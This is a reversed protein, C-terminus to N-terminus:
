AANKGSPRHSMSVPDASRAGVNASLAGAGIIAGAIVDLLGDDHILGAEERRAAAVCAARQSELPTRSHLGRM